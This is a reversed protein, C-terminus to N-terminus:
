PARESLLQEVREVVALPDQPKTLVADSVAEAATIEDPLARATFSVILADHKGDERAARTFPSRGPVDLPFDGIIADPREAGVLPLAEEGTPAVLVRHGRSEFAACLISRTDEDSNVLLVVSM